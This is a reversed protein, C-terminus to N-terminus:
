DDNAEIVGCAVRDGANGAPQSTFDDEKGHLVVSRGIISDPGNLSIMKDIREYHADGNEDAIINGLDGVHREKSDPGGHKSKTPNFHGGASSADDARCDGKEHIHFGHKGPPTVDHFEAMIKVGDEVTSFGVIGHAKNGKTPRLVCTASTVEDQFDDEVVVHSNASCGSTFLGLAISFGSLSLLSIKIGKM